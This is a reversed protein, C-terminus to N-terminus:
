YGTIFILNCTETEITFDFATTTPSATTACGPSIPAKNTLIIGNGPNGDDAKQDVLFAEKPTLTAGSTFNTTTLNGYVIAHEYMAPFYNANGNPAYIYMLTFGTGKINGKPVNLGPVAETATNLGTVGTYAGGVLGANALQQWARFIENTSAGGDTIIDGIHGNGNGDCTAIHPTISAYTPCTSDTGWFTVANSLDGPLERYKEHFVGTAKNYEDVQAMVKMIKSSRFLDSSMIIGALFIAIILIIISLEILTFAQNQPTPKM